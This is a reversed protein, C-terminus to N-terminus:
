PGGGKPLLVVYTPLGIVQFYDLVDAIAPDRLDEAQYKVAVFAELRARVADDKFTTRDMQLCNKCWTAWFDIFVPKGVRRAEILADDLSTYWGDPPPPVDAPDLSRAPLLTYGLHGYWLAMALIVLGFGIKVREMWRGPKPLVSLGAGALPWPLAMGVGLLFPLLLGAVNGRAYFDASLLLVGIVVPAVCAGALLAAVGGMFLATWLRGSHASGGGIRSQFRSFDIPLGGFMGVALLAFLAAIALNFVPSANLTGFRAGTLVVVLGLVGYVIAIGVGYAGGLLFGRGRSGAQAGAGIIAINIPIMPLVCPTLNLALGGLLILLCSLWVGRAQFRDVTSATAEPQGAAAEDLFALFNSVRMFGVGVGGIEFADLADRWGGQVAPPTVTEASPEIPTVAAAPSAMVAPGEGASVILDRTAPLYCLSADCAQFRVQLAVSALDAPQVRYRFATDRAFVRVREGTFYDEREEPEPATVPELTAPSQARVSVQDAYLYFGDPIGFRVTLEPGEAGATWEAVTRIQQQAGAVGGWLLSLAAISVALRAMNKAKRM